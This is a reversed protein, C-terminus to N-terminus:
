NNLKRRGQCVCEIESLETNHTESEEMEGCAYRLHRDEDSRNECVTLGNLHRDHLPLVQMCDIAEFGYLAYIGAM